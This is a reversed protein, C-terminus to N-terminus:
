GAPSLKRTGRPASRVWRTLEAAEMFVPTHKDKRRIADCVKGADPQSVTVGLFVLDPKAGFYFRLADFGSDATLVRYGELRFFDALASLRLPDGDAILLIEGEADGGADAMYVEGEENWWWGAGIKIGELLTDEASADDLEPYAGNMHGNMVGEM